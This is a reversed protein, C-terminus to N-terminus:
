YFLLCLKRKMFIEFLRGVLGGDSRGVIKPHTFAHHVPKQQQQQEKFIGQFIYRLKTPLCMFFSFFYQFNERQARSSTDFLLHYCINEDQSTTKETKMLKAKIEVSIVKLWYKYSIQQEDSGAIVSIIVSRISISINM